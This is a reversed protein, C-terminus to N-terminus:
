LAAVPPAASSLGLGPGIGHSREGEHIGAIFVGGCVAPRYRAPGM